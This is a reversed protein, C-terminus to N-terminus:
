KYAQGWRTNIVNWNFIRWIDDLYRKKDAHYDLSYAHEWMDVLILIDNRVQHNHITKIKGDRALYIWGSGQLKLAEAKFAEKFDEWTKFKQRILNGIPGNPKNNNRPARFQPFLVNHLFAGAYNFERDGEKKNFRDAYGHALKDYHYKMTASSMVPALDTESYALPIIEIDQPKNKSELLDIIERM